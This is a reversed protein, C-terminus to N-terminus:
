GQPRCARVTISRMSSRWDDPPAAIAATDDLVEMREFGAAKIRELYVSKLEAGGICDLWQRRDARVEAPLEREAVMDSIVMRGGPKLVRFIESFVLDKRESLNIVCNSMVMDVTADPEPIAEIRGLKFVVNRTDLQAANKRALAVMAPTM